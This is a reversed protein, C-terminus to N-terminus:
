LGNVYNCIRTIQFLLSILAQKLEVAWLSLTFVVCFDSKGQDAMKLTIM